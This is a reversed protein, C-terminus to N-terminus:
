NEQYQERMREALKEIESLYNRFLSTYDSQSSILGSNVNNDKLGSLLMRQHQKLLNYLWSHPDNKALQLEYLESPLDARSLVESLLEFPLLNYQAVLESTLSIVAGYLHHLASEEHMQKHQVSNAQEAQELCLRVFYISQNTRGTNSM